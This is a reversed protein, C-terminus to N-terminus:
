RTCVTMYFTGVLDLINCATATTLDALPLYVVPQGITREVRHSRLLHIVDGLSIMVNHCYTHLTIYHLTFTSKYLACDCLAELASYLPYQMGVRFRPQKRRNYVEM